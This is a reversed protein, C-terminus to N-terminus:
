TEILRNQIQFYLFVILFSFQFNMFSMIFVISRHASAQFGRFSKWKWGFSFDLTPFDLFLNELKKTTKQHPPFYLAKKVSKM